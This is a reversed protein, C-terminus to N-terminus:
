PHHDAQMAHTVARNQQWVYVLAAFPWLTGLWLTVGSFNLFRGPNWAQQTIELYINEPTLNVLLLAMLLVSMALRREITAGLDILAVTIFGACLGVQAGPTLWSLAQDPGTLLAHSLTKCAFAIIGWAVLLRRRPAAPQLLSSLLWGCGAVQCGAIVGEIWLYTSLKIQYLDHLSLPLNLFDQLWDLTPKLADGLGFLFPKPYLLAIWWLAVLILGGSAEKTFWRLRYGLLVGRDLLAATRWTALLAGILTGSSNCLLDLNSPVRLPLFTQLAEMSASLASGLLVTLCVTLMGRLAPYMALAALFGLPLYALVNAFVDFGSIYRQAPATLYSWPSIGLDRWGHFPHLSGYVVLLVYVLLAYRALPSARRPASTAASTDASVQTTAAPLPM